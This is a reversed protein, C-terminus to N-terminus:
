AALNAIPGGAVQRCDKDKRGAVRTGIGGLQRREM